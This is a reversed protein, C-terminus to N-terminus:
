IHCDIVSLLTDDPIQALMAQYERAWVKEDRADSVSGWWGMSGREHWVGDLLVAFTSVAKTREREVVAALDGNCFHERISVGFLPLVRGLKQDREHIAVIMPHENYIARAKELGHQELLAAWDPIEGTFLDAFASFQETIRVAAADRMGPLDIDKKLASACRSGDKLLWFRPWRGGILWWDWKKNPNTRKVARVLKGNVVVAFGYKHTDGRKVESEDAVIRDDLGHNELAGSLGHEDEAAEGSIEETIDKDIVFDDDVGTCEFEHFPQLQADLDAGAVLVTFHSM